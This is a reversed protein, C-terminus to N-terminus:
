TGPGGYVPFYPLFRTKELDAFLIFLVIFVVNTLYMCAPAAQNIINYRGDDAISISRERFRSWCWTISYRM